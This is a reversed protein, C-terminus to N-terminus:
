RSPPYPSTKQRRNPAMAPEVAALRHRAVALVVVASMLVPRGWGKPGNPAEHRSLGGPAPGLPGVDHNKDPM